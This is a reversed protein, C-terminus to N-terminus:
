HKVVAKLPKKKVATSKKKDPPFLRDFEAQIEDKHKKRWIHADIVAHIQKEPTGFSQLAEVYPRLPPRKGKNFYKQYVDHMKGDVHVKVQDGEIKFIVKILGSWPEAEVKKLAVNPKQDVERTSLHLTKIYKESDGDRRYEALAEEKQEYTIESRAMGWKYDNPYLIENSYAPKVPKPVYHTPARDYLLRQIDSQSPPNFKYCGHKFPSPRKFM